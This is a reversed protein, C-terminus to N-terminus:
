FGKLWNVGYAIRYMTLQVFSTPTVSVQLFRIPPCFFKELAILTTGVGGTAGVVLVCKSSSALTDQEEVM